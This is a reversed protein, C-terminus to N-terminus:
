NGNIQVETKEIYLTNGVRLSRVSQDLFFDDRSDNLLRESKSACYDELARNFGEPTVIVLELVEIADVREMASKALTALYANASFTIKKMECEPIEYASNMTVAYFKGEESVIKDVASTTIDTGDSFRGATDGYIHGDIARKSFPNFYVDKIVGKVEKGAVVKKCQSM